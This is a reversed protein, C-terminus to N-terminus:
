EEDLVKTEHEYFVPGKVKLATSIIGDKRVVVGEDVPSDACLPIAQPYGCEFFRKDTWEAPNFERHEGEWLLPVTKLGREKCFQEVGPWSLDYLGGDGQVVAVRYVYLETNGPSVNYTYGKQIPQSTGSVYGVLEGYLIVGKPLLSGYKLAAETWIDTNYYHDQLVNQPDKIVKRSGGIYDYYYKEVPVGLKSLLREFWNLKRKVPVNGIRVSTGHLKQTVYVHDYPRFKREQERWWQGTEYHEPLFKDDVRKWLKAQRNATTSTKKVPTVYKNSVQVGDVTDFVTGLPPNGFYDAPLTLANSPVGRLRIAKVRRNKGLYGKVEPNANLEARAFLNNEQAVTESLQSEAPFIVVNKGVADRNVLATYGNWVFGVLNQLEPFEVVKDIVVSEAAYNLSDTVTYDTM